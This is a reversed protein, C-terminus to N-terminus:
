WWTNKSCIVNRQLTVMVHKQLM